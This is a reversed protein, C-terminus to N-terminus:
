VIKALSSKAYKSLSFSANGKAPITILDGTKIMKCTREASKKYKFQGITSLPVNDKEMLTKLIIDGLADLMQECLVKTQKTKEALAAILENRKM